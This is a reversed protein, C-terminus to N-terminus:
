MGESIYIQVRSQIINATEQATKIGAFYMDIEDNIIDTVGTDYRILSGASSIFEKIYAVDEATIGSTDYGPGIYGDKYGIIGGTDGKIAAEGLKDYSSIKVPWENSVNDQYEDSLFYKIFEWSGDVLKSKKLISIRSSPIIVSGNESQTPFGILSVEDKFTYDRLETCQYFSNMYVQNLIVRDEEYAREIDTWFDDPVNEWDITEYISKEDFTNCFELLNVFDASDFSCEGTDTNIFQGMTFSMAMDMIEKRNMGFFTLTGDPLTKMLANMDEFSWAFRDGVFKTKAAVTRVSFSPIISYLKGEVSLAVFINAFYEDRNFEDKDM